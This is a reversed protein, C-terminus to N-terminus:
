SNRTSYPGRRHALSDKWGLEKVAVQAADFVSQPESEVFTHERNSKNWVPSVLVGDSELLQFARLQAKAQHAFRDGVGFSYKALPEM